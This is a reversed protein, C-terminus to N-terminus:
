RCGPQRAGRKKPATFQHSQNLLVRLASRAWNGLELGPAGRNELLDLILHHRDVTQDPIDRVVRLVNLHAVALVLPFHLLHGREEVRGEGVPGVALWKPPCPANGQRLAGSTDFVSM